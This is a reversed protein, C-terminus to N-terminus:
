NIQTIAIIKKVNFKIVYFYSSRFAYYDIALRIVQRVRRPVFQFVAQFAFDHSISM